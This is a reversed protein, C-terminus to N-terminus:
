PITKLTTTASWYHLISKHSIVHDKLVFIATDFFHMSLSTFSFTVLVHSFDLLEPSCRPRRSVSTNTVYFLFLLPGVVRIASLESLTTLKLIVSVGGQHLLEQTSREFSSRPPIVDGGLVVGM